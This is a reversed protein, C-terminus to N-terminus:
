RHHLSSLRCPLDQRSQTEFYNKSQHNLGNIIQAMTQAELRNLKHLKRRSEVVCDIEKPTLKVIHHREAVRMIEIFLGERKRPSLLKSDKVGLQALLKLNEEKILFGAIVLPGIVCGRGAEDVGAVLM